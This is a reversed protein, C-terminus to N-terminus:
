LVLRYAWDLLGLGISFLVLLALLVISGGDYYFTDSHRVGYLIEGGLFLFVLPWLRAATLYPLGPLFINVLYLCGFLILTCGLSITGIRHTRM